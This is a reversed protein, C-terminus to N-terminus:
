WTVNFAIIGSSPIHIAANDVFYLNGIAQKLPQKFYYGKNDIILITNLFYLM